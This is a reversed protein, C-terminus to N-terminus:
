AADVRVRAVKLAEGVSVAHRDYVDRAVRVKVEATQHEAGGRRAALHAGRRAVELRERAKELAVVADQAAGVEVRFSEELQAHFESLASQAEREADSAVQLSRAAKELVHRVEEKGGREQYEQAVGTLGEALGAAESGGGSVGQLMIETNVHTMLTWLSSSSREFDELAQQLLRSHKTEGARSGSGTRGGEDGPSTGSGQDGRSDGNAKSGTSIIGSFLGSIGARWTSQKGQQPTQHSVEEDDDMDFLDEEELEAQLETAARIRANELFNFRSAM